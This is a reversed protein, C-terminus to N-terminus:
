WSRSAKGLGPHFGTECGQAVKTGNWAATQAGGAGSGFGSMTSAKITCTCSPPYAPMGRLGSGCGHGMHRAAHLLLLLLLLLCRTRRAPRRNRPTGCPLMPRPASRRLHSRRAALSLAALRAPTAMALARRSMRKLWIYAQYGTQKAPFLCTASHIHAPKPTIFSSACAQTRQSNRAVKQARNSCDTPPHPM